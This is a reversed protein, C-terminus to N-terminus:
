GTATTSALRAGAARASQQRAEFLDHSALAFERWAAALDLTIAQLYDADPHHEQAFNSLACSRANFALAQEVLQKSFGSFGEIMGKALPTQAAGVDLPVQEIGSLWALAESYTQEATAVVARQTVRDGDQRSLWHHLHQQYRPMAGERAQATWAHFAQMTQPWAASSGSAASAGKAGAAPRLLEAVRAISELAGELHGAAVRATETGAFHLRGAWHPRRLLPDAQPPTSMGDALDLASCTWPEQAWDQYLLEGETAQTHVETGFWQGWQSDALLPMSRAFATRAGAPIACFAALAAGDRDSADWNERLASQLHSSFASGSKGQLM